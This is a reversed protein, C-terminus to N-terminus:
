YLHMINSSNVDYCAYHAQRLAMQLRMEGSTALVFVLRMLGYQTTLLM